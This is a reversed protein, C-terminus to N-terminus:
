NNGYVDRVGYILLDGNLNETSLIRFNLAENLKLIGNGETVSKGGGILKPAIYHYIEDVLGHTIFSSHVKSGGEILVHAINRNLLETCVQELNIGAKDKAVKVIEVNNASFKKIREINNCNTFVITKSSSYYINSNIKTELNSDLVIRIPSNGTGSRNNLTPNDNIVTNKGVLIGDIQGRILHVHKRSNENTIWKSEGTSSAIKGDLTTAFKLTFFPRKELKNVLFVRNLFMAEKELLGVEVNIGAERLRKIGNGSVREDPDMMAVFVKEIKEKIIREVCPPTKGYHSCPELSVYMIAGKANGQIKDLADVEAHAKGYAHHYGQSIIKNNKVLVAGVLPNTKTFGRGKSALELAKKMYNLDNELYM